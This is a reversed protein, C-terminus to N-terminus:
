RRGAPRPQPPPANDSARSLLERAHQLVVSTMQRGGLMRAIEEAREAEDLREIRTRTRQDKVEKTVAFHTTGFVAVQPMHTIAIVQHTRGLARLKHGVATATEGGINADIEDFVLIPIQDHAALATKLALMVRSIEGSSAIARLPHPPEGPNPAFFFEVADAGTAGPEIPTLRVEFGAQRLGLDRLESAVRESLERATRVRKDHLRATANRLHTKIESREREIELLRQERNQLTELRARAKDLQRSWEEPGGPYKRHLRHYLAMREEIQRLREPDAEVRQAAQAIASGLSQLRRALDHIEDRWAAAESLRHSLRDLANQASRLSTLAAYEGDTLAELLGNATELLEQAATARAHEEQLRDEEGPEFHAAELEQVQFRLFDLERAFQSEDGELTEREKRLALWQRHYDACPQRDVELGGFADLLDRQQDASLLSQHDHPGHLDVLRDGIRKLTQLTTAQDNLTIRGAGNAQLTRRVILRHPDDGTLDLEQLLATAPSPHPLSFVAEVEARDTGARILTKDAREGLLLALAGVLISKGAGTEGTLVNLGPCFEVTLEDVLALHRIRLTELMAPM